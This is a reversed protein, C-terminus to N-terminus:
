AAPAIVVNLFTIAGALFPVAFLVAKPLSRTELYSVVGVGLAVVVAMFLVLATRVSLLAQSSDTVPEESSPLNSSVHSRGRRQKRRM